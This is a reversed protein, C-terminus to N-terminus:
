NSMKIRLTDLQKETHHGRTFMKTESNGNISNVCIMRSHLPYLTLYNLHCVEKLHLYDLYQSFWVADYKKREFKWYSNVFSQVHKMVYQINRLDYKRFDPCSLMQRALMEKHYLNLILAHTMIPSNQTVASVVNIRFKCVATM